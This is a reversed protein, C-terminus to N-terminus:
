LLPAALPAVGVHFGESLIGLAACRQLGSSARVPECIPAAGMAKRPKASVAAARCRQRCASTSPAAPQRSHPAPGRGQALLQQQELRQRIRGPNARRAQPAVAFVATPAQKRLEGLLAAIAAASERPVVTVKASM